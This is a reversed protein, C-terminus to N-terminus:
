MPHRCHAALNSTSCEDCFLHSFVPAGGHECHGAVLMGVGHESPGGAVAGSLLVVMLAVAAGAVSRRTVHSVVVAEEGALRRIRRDLLDPGAFAVVDNMARGAPLAALKLIASALVLPRGPAAHDDALIEVEDAMDDALRRLAPIWFLVRGLFRYISLRLPDRRAVHAAEHSLVCALEDESLRSPLDTAVYIRPSIMGATFAPNPLGDVVKILQPDIREAMAAKWIPSGAGPQSADLPTLANRLRSWARWRDWAAYGVGAALAVHFSGHVPNLFYRLATTCFAGFHQVGTVIAAADFPLHHGFVPLVSLFMLGATALLTVRRHVQEREALRASLHKARVAM